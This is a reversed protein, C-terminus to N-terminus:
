IYMYTAQNKKIINLSWLLQMSVYASAGQETCHQRFSLSTVQSGTWPLFSPVHCPVFLIIPFPLVPSSERCLLFWEGVANWPREMVICSINILANCLVIKINVNTSMTVAEVVNVEVHEIM